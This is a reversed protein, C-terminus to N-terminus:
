DVQIKFLEAMDKKVQENSKFLLTNVGLKTPIEFYSEKNDIFLLENPEQPLKSLVSDWIVDQKKSMKMKQSLFKIDFYKDFDLKKQYNEYVIDFNNSLLYIPYNKKLKLIFELLEENLGPITEFLYYFDQPNKSKDLSGIFKELFENPSIEARAFPQLLKKFEARIIKEDVELKATLERAICDAWNERTCVGFWDFIIAKIM